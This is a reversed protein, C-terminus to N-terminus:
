NKDSSYRERPTLKLRLGNANILVLESIFRLEDEKDLAEVHFAKLISLVAFKIVFTAFKSGICNRSGASFPIFVYPPLKPRDPLFREPRYVEPDPFYRPDRHLLYSNVLVTSGPPIYKGM